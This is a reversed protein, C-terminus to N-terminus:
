YKASLVVGFTLPQIINITGGPQANYISGSSAYSTIGRSDTLNKGYVEFRWRDNEFGARLAFTDYSPLKVYGDGPSLDGYPPYLKPTYQYTNYDSYRQGIFSYTAGVFARYNASVAWRYEGDLSTQWAPVYPLRDGPAAVITADKSLSTLKADTYAGTWNLTLGKVPFLGITWELGQSTADGANNNVGTPTGNVVLEELIQINSWDIHFAAVDVSLKHQLLSARLGVEYNFTSDSAYTRPAGTAGAPIDNPGGPRYGTAVRAYILTDANVHWRPAISYTFDSGSSPYPTGPGGAGTLLGPYDTTTSSQSNTSWRLGAEVDFQPIFHYTADAFGAWETYVASLLDGGPVPNSGPSSTNIVQDIVTDERTYFGGVQWELKQGPKSAIRIEETFKHLGTLQVESPTQTGGYIYNSFYYGYSLGPAAETATLDALTSLKLIGYSTISTVSIPGPNWNLEGSYNEIRDKFYQPTFTNQTLGAVPQLQNAPPPSCYTATACAGGLLPAGVVDIASSGDTKLLQSVATLKISFEQTPRYLLSARLGYKGGSNLDRKGLQPDDIYGPLDEKYGSIRLAAQGGLLPLNIMGKVDGATEGHEVSQVGVEGAAEFRGPNPANLVFKLLGGETSAGYLTGQPGRLVEVRQLDWTDFDGTTISGNALANSSGFPAEDIYVATTSGVGGANEGRLTLRNEGPGIAEVSLSPVLPAYDIFSVSQQADLSNGGLATVGMAVDHLKEARKNATVVVEQVTAVPKADDAAAQAAALLATAAAGYAWFRRSTTNDRGM